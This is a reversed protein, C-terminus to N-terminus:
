YGHIIINQEEAISKDILIKKIAIRQDGTLQIYNGINEDNKVFANCHLTQRMLKALFILDVDNPLNEIISISQRKNRQRIKIHVKNNANISQSIEINPDFIFETQM